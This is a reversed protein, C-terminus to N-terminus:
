WSARYSLLPWGGLCVVLPPKVNTQVDWHIETSTFNACDDSKQDFM